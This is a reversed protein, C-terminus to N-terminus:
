ARPYKSGTTTRSEIMAGDKEVWVRCRIGWVRAARAAKSMKEVAERKTRCEDLKATRGESSEIIQYM